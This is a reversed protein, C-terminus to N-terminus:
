STGRTEITEKGPSLSLGSLLGAALAVKACTTCDKRSGLPVSLGIASLAYIAVYDGNDSMSAREMEPRVTPRAEEAFNSGFACAANFSARTIVVRHQDLIQSKQTHERPTAIEPTKQRMEHPRPAM